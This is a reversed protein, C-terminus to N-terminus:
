GQHGSIKKEAFEYFSQHVLFKLAMVVAEQLVGGDQRGGMAKAKRKGRSTFTLWCNGGTQNPAERKELKM